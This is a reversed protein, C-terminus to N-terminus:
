IVDISRVLLLCLCNPQDTKEYIASLRGLSANIADYLSTQLTVDERRGWSALYIVFCM